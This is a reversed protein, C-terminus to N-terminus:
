QYSYQLNSVQFLEAWKPPDYLEAKFLPAFDPYTFGSLYNKEMFEVAWQSKWGQWIEWFWEEGGGVSYSPVSYVGWHMFIGFKAEDYWKPLPRSDLSDWNPLYQSSTLCLVTLLVLERLRNAM